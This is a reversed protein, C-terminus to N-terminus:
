FLFGSVLGSLWLPTSVWGSGSMRSHSTLHAKPLMVVLLALPPSPIGASTNWIRLSSITLTSCAIHWCIQFVWCHDCSHFLDTKMRIGLFAIGLFTWIVACNHESCMTALYQEFDKLSPKLLGHVLFKWIFLSSKFIASSGSILNSVDAPDYFFCSFELLVHVEAENIASFSKVTYIM